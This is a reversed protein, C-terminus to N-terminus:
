NTTRTPPPAYRAHNTTKPWDLTSDLQHATSAPIPTRFHTFSRITASDNRQYICDFLRPIRAVHFRIRPHIGKVSLIQSTRSNQPRSALGDLSPVRCRKATLQISSHQFNPDLPEAKEDLPARHRMARDFEALTSSFTCVLNVGDGSELQSFVPSTPFNDRRSRALNRRASFSSGFKTPM